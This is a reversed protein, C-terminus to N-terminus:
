SSQITKTMHFNAHTIKYYKLFRLNYYKEIGNLM